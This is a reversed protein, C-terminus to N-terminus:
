TANERESTYEADSRLMFHGSMRDHGCEVIGTKGGRNKGVIIQTFTKFPVKDRYKADGSPGPAFDRRTFYRGPQNVVIVVDADKHGGYAVDEVQPARKEKAVSKNVQHLLVIDLDTRRALMKLGRSMADYAGARDERRYGRLAFLGLYDLIAVGRKVQRAWGELDRIVLEIDEYIDRDIITIPREALRAYADNQKAFHQDRSIASVPKESRSIREKNDEVLYQIYDDYQPPVRSELWCLREGFEAASMERTHIRVPLGQRSLHWGAQAALMSKGHSTFGTIMLLRGGTLPRAIPTLPGVPWTYALGKAELDMLDDRNRVTATVWSETEALEGIRLAGLRDAYDGIVRWAEGEGDTLERSLGAACMIAERRQWAETVLTIYANINEVVPFHDTVSALYDIGVEGLVGRQRLENALTLRNVPAATRNLVVASEFLHRNRIDGFMEPSLRQVARGQADMNLVCCALVALEADAGLVSM